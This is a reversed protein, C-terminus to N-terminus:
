PIKKRCAEERKEAWHYNEATKALPAAKEWLNAGEEWKERREAQAAREALVNYKLQAKGFKDWDGDINQM